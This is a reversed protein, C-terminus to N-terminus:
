IDSKLIIKDVRSNGFEERLIERLLGIHKFFVGKALREPTTFSLKHGNKIQQDLQAVRRKDAEIAKQLHKNIIEELEGATSIELQGVEDLITSYNEDEGKNETPILKDLVKRLSDANLQDKEQIPLHNLEEREELVREFELDVTELLASVRNITRIIKSPVHSKKKYNLIHSAAAWTHQSATRLQIELNLGKLSRLAPIAVWQEPLSAEYHVSGYGFQDDSLRNATDEERQINFTSTIIEQIRTIDSRFLTVIRIGAIDNMDEIDNLDLSYRQCKDIISDWDKVRYHIPVALKISKEDMLVELQKIVEECLALYNPHASDYQSKLTELDM